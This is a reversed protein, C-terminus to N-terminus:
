RRRQEAEIKRLVLEIGREIVNTQALPVGGIGKDCVARLRQELDPALRISIQARRGKTNRATADRM